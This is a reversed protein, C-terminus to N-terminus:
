WKTRFEIILKVRQKLVTTKIIEGDFVKLIQPMSCEPLQAQNPKLTLLDFTLTVDHPPM